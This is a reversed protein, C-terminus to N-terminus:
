AIDCHTAAPREEDGAFIAAEGLETISAPLIAIDAQAISRRADALGQRSAGVRGPVTELSHWRYPLGIPELDSAQLLKAVQEITAVDAKDQDSHRPDFLPQGPVRLEIGADSENM